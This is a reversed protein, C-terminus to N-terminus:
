DDVTIAHRQDPEPDVEFRVAPLTKLGDLYARCIRHIGDLIRGDESLIIPHEFTANEIKRYHELVKNITPKQQSGFWVDQDFSEFSAVEYEFVPLNISLEWLRKAIWLHIEGNKELGVFAEKINFKPVENSPQVMKSGPIRHILRDLCRAFLM